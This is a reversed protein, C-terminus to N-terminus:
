PQRLEIKLAYDFAVPVDRLTTVRVYYTGATKVATAFAQQAGIAPCPNGDSGAVQGGITHGGPLVFTAQMPPTKPDCVGDNPDLMTASLSAGVPVDVAYMDFDCHGGLRGHVTMTPHDAPMLLVNAGTWDDNPEVENPEPIEATATLEARCHSDCGDGSILNGDDCSESHDLIGDGCIPHIALVNSRGGGPARSDIGVIFKGGKGAVFSMHEDRDPGCEDEGNGLSCTREDCAPLVYLAVDLKPTLPHVHFHWKQGALMDVTFFGDNGPEAYGTCSQLDHMSDTLDTTDVPFTQESSRVAPVVDECHAGLGSIHYLAPDFVDCGGLTAILLLHASRQNMM